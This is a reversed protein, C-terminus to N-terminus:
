EEGLTAAWAERLNNTVEIIANIDHVNVQHSSIAANLGGCVYIREPTPDKSKPRAPAEGSQDYERSNDVTRQQQRSRPDVERVAQVVKQAVAPPENNVLKPTGKIDRYTVNNKINEVFEIDYSDGVNILGIKDPWIGYWLGNTDKISASRRGEAPKIFAVTIIARELEKGGRYDGADQRLAVPM